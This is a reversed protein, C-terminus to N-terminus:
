PSGRINPHVKVSAKSVRFMLKWNELSPISVPGISENYLINRKNGELILENMSEFMNQVFLKLRM